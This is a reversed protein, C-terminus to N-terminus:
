FIYILLYNSSGNYQINSIYNIHSVRNFTSISCKRDVLGKIFDEVYLNYVQDKTSYPLRVAPMITGDKMKKSLHPMVEFDCIFLKFWTEVSHRTHSIRHPTMGNKTGVMGGASAAAALMRISCKFLRRM